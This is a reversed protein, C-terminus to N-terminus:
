ANAQDDRDEHEWKDIQYDQELLKEREKAGPLVCVSHFECLGYMTCSGTFRPWSEEVSCNRIMQATNRVSILWEAIEEDTRNTVQREFKTPSAKYMGVANIIAGAVRHGTMKQAGWIYGTIQNNPRFQRFFTKGLQTTTKHEFVYINGNWEVLGDFIGGYELPELAEGCNGCETAGELSTLQCEQCKLLCMGTDLTFSREIMVQDTGANVVAFQEAPYKRMYSIMVEAAKAKTRWDDVPVNTPFSDDIRRLAEVKSSTKYWGALGEHM